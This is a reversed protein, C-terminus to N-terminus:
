EWRKGFSEVPGGIFLLFVVSGSGNLRGNRSSFRLDDRWFRLDSLAGLVGLCGDGVKLSAATQRRVRDFLKERVAEGFDLDLFLNIHLAVGSPDVVLEVLSITLAVLPKGQWPFRLEGLLFITLSPFSDGDESLILCSNTSWCSLLCGLPLLGTTM